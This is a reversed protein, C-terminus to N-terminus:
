YAITHAFGLKDCPDNDLVWSCIARIVTKSAETPSVPYAIRKAQPTALVRLANQLLVRRVRSRTGMEWRAM